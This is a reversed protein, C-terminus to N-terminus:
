ATDEGTNRGTEELQPEVYPEDVELGHELQEGMNGAFADLQAQFRATSMQASNAFTSSGRGRDLQRLNLIFRSVLIGTIINWFDNSYAIIVLAPVSEVLIQLINMSLLTVFYVTGDRLLLTSLPLHMNLSAAERKTKYTKAWTLVLVLVDGLILAVRTALGLDPYCDASPEGGGSPRFVVAQSGVARLYTHRLISRSSHTPNDRRSESDALRDYVHESTPAISITIYVVLAYRNLLFLVTGSTFKRKWITTIEQNLTIMHEFVVLAATATLIYTDTFDAELAAILEAAESSSSAMALASASIVGELRACELALFQASAFAVHVHLSAADRSSALGETRGHDTSYIRKTRAGLRTGMNYQYVYVANVANSQIAQLLKERLTKESHYRPLKLLNVCTSATPLRSEDSGADRIAFNPVLEKFGLLPPRSCSTAFRLLLRRQDQTFTDVVRWFMQITPEHDDYLGGYQTHSRLDEIDIPANVGGLLIQLEQQNFMRLWKPDIMQSLGDFFADSQKKIQKTLRYHSVLYIYQLRNERTVPIQDGNPILPINKTVGFEETAVAFNLSLDEPNGTYHKLFILGQYLEPDLSALDDLFSQKGLWKALFFGAFAVDVLIGDYLAKGLIRGIFRYWALSHPETAYTHPNPYLENKKNALWLGRDSDFVEKTLSTLFEKFVGGGDIGAEEQGFQDIFTIAIPSKLDVSELKDFGDQAINERRVTVRTTYRFRNRSDDYGRMQLDNEVFHRFISVRVEFPIAFPINNLVGLRPSLLAVQRQSMVRNRSVNIEPLADSLKREEFVAAEIFPGIDLQSTVLWHDPPTFPKRSDRAHIAQLLKTIRERVTEWKLNTFGPVCNDQVNTQDERWYLTFAINLLQKSFATIEDLTLPNRAAATSTSASSSAAVINRPSSSFFEDDGMTLLAQNYLDVLFLLPPWHAGHVHDMLASANNLQDAQGLPSNRVFDRYLERVLGGGRWAVVTSIVKDKRSPWVMCLSQCWTFLAVRMDRATYKYSASILSTIHGPSPLTQLRTRTKSDLEPLKIRPTFSSVVEVQAVPEDEDEDGWATASEASTERAPPELAHIPLGNMAESTLHLYASLAAASLISYRPPAFMSLNALLNIRSEIAPEPLNTLVRPLSITDLSTFPIRPAFATLSPIPLRNPLLPVSLIYSFCDEVALRYPASSVELSTFPTTLLSVILPLSPSSKDAAPIRSIAKGLLSYLGKHILHSLYATHSALALLVQLHSVTYLSQPHDAVVQLLLISTRRLLVAWTPDSMGAQLFDQGLRTVETSWRGLAAEDRGILVLCRLGTLSTVDQNFTERLQRRVLEAQRRGRWWSQIKIAGDQRRRGEDRQLRRAKAEQIISAQTSQSTTGGLNIERRRKGSIDEGFLPFDM